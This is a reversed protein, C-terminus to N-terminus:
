KGGKMDKRVNAMFMKLQSSTLGRGHAEIEKVFAKFANWEKAAKIFIAPTKDQKPAPTEGWKALEMKAKQLPDEEGWDIQDPTIITFGENKYYNIGSRGIKGHFSFLDVATKKEYPEFGDFEKAEIGDDWILNNITFKDMLANFIEQTPTHIAIKETKLEQLTYKKM